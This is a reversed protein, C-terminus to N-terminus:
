WPTNCLPYYLNDSKVQEIKGDKFTYKNETVIESKNIDKPLVLESLYDDVVDITKRDLCQMNETQKQYNEYTVVGYDQNFGLDKLNKFEKTAKNESIALNNLYPASFLYYNYKTDSTISKISFLDPRIALIDNFHKECDYKSTMLNEELGEIKDMYYDLNYSYISKNNVLFDVKNNKEGNELKYFVFRYENGDVTKATECLKTEKVEKQTNNNTNNVKNNKNFSIVDTLCLISFICACAVVAVIAGFISNKM